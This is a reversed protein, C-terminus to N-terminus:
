GFLVSPVAYQGRRAGACPPAAGFPGRRTSPARKCTPVLRTWQALAQLQTMPWDLTLTLGQGSKFQATYTRRRRRPTSVPERHM